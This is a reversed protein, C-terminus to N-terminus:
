TEMQGRVSKGHMEKVTTRGLFAVIQRWFLLSLNREKEFILTHTHTDCALWSALISAM